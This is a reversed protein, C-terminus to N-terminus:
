RWLGRLRETDPGDLCVRDRDQLQDNLEKITADLSAARNAEAVALIADAKAAQDAKIVARKATALNAESLALAAKASAHKNGLYYSYGVSGALAGVLLMPIIWGTTVAGIVKPLLGTAASKALDLFFSSM